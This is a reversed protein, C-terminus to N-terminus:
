RLHIVDAAIVVRRGGETEVLLHGREDLEAATGVFTEGALEVRVRRGLTVSCAALERILARRGAPDDLGPRRAELADLLAELLAERDVAREALANLCTAGLEDAVNGPTPWSVNIGIGVVVALDATGVGATEALVGAVKLDDVVLDNPWKAGLTVGALDHCAERAALTVLTSAAFLEGPEIRPRLLVSVLLGSSTPSEWSRGLRGRGASQRDAVVVSGEGLGAHAAELLWTNTSDLEEFRRVDTFLHRSPASMNEVV